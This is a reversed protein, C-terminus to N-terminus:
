LSVMRDSSWGCDYGGSLKPGNWDRKNWKGGKADFRFLGKTSICVAGAPTPKMQSHMVGLHDLGPHSCSSIPRVPM